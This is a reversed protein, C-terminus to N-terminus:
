EPVSRRLQKEFPTTHIDVSVSLADRVEKSTPRRGVLKRVQSIVRWYWRFGARHWRVRNRVHRRSTGTGLRVLLPSSGVPRTQRVFGAKPASSRLLRVLTGFCLRLFCLM